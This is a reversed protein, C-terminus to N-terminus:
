EAAPAIYQPKLEREEGNLVVTVPAHDPTATYLAYDVLKGDKWAMNITIDGRARIGAIYGDKWATPLAPLLEIRGDHSQVFMESMGGTMGYVGDMQMPPHNGFLNDLVNYRIYGQVMEYARETQGFRAWLATRWPWTWSRRNDGSMGRLELSKMAAAALEPTKHRSISSGPFVGILHSTHRHGSVLNPRDVVWEQLYGGDAVRNGVLRDRMSILKKAWAEDTGLIRAAKATNDFLEWILQQDHMCADEVPGQEHSWGNPSVLSGAKIRKLEPYQAATLPTKGNDTMLGRGEAGVEKLHKEWFQAISKLLPYGTRRLYNKDQTFLYHDWVHLAYWANVPPNWKVWGGGGWPNQSIRTTWGPTDAGFEKQTMVHLPEEMAKMFDIFNLHCESLNGVEPGWYCMQLNINNHYDSGWAAHVKDNWIGQLTLPLSGPRSGAILMYRGYQYILAELEPDTQQERYKALREDTPLAATAPDTKGLSLSLRNFLSKHDAIHAKRIASLKKGRVAKLVKANHKAPDGGKWDARYDEKYDTAMSIYVTVSDAEKVQIYPIGKAELVPRVGAGKGEYSVDVRHNGGVLAAKGGKTKVMLRAEFKEGNALTGSMVVTDKGAPTFETSHFPTLGLKVTLAGPKDAKATYVVVNDPYSVFAERSHRVGGNVFQMRAIGDVLNLSRSYDETEGPLEFEAWFNAFPQYSGFGDKGTKPGYSYGSGNGGLNPGGTWLSVENLNIRERRDGGFVTGGMRGNGIPLTQSEWPDDLRNSLADNACFAESIETLDRGDGGLNHAPTKGAAWPVPAENVRAPLRYWLMNQTAQEQASASSLAASAVLLLTTSLKIM